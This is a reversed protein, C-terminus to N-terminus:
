GGVLLFLNFFFFFFNIHNLDLYGCSAVLLSWLEVHIHDEKRDAINEGKRQFHFYFDSLRTWSKSVRM